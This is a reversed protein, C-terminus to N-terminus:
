VRGSFTLHAENQTDSAVDNNAHTDTDPGTFQRTSERSDYELHLCEQGREARKQTKHGLVRLLELFRSWGCRRSLPSLTM